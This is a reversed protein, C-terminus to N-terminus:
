KLLPNFFIAKKLKPIDVEGQTKLIIKGGPGVLITYPLAGNWEPDVSEILKYNDGESFIYNTLASNNRKLFKHVTNKNSIKDASISVFEFNRAGYIRQLKVLEPYEVVCPGCWSAWINILRLNPSDNKILTKIGKVDIENLEVPKAQWNKDMRAVTEAKWAWKTSCGLTKTVPNEILKGALVADTAARLNEARGVEPDENQDVNGVYQLKRNQDFIFAHPTAAPGYKLAVQQNDGDYLFPFNFKKNEARVKMNEYSDDFESWGLEELALGMNSNSMIAVVQVDKAKYDKTFQIIRDEYHTATPCHVCTFIVVLVKADKFDSLSVMKGYIDPLSFDPASSGIALTEHSQEAILQPNPVFVAASETNEKKQPSSCSVIFIGLSLILLFIFYSKRIRIM